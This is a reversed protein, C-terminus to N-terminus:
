DPRSERRARYLEADARAIVDAATDGARLEAIGVSASGREPATRLADRLPALREHAAQLSIGCLVCVFEDGGYRMVLDYPRLHASLTAAFEALLRDGARHGFEDNIAKLGDIDFFAVVVSEGLRRARAIERALEAFGARRTSVGTLFDTAAARREDASVDRDTAAADRDLAAHARDDAGTDRDRSALTRDDAAAERARAARGLVHEVPEVVEACVEADSAADSEDRRGAAADRQLGSRDREEGAEDRRRAARDRGAAAEDRAAAATRSADTDDHEGRDRVVQV